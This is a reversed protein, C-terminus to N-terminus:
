KVEKICSKTDSYKFCEKINAIRNYTPSDYLNPSDMMLDQMNVDVIDVFDQVVGNRYIDSSVIKYLIAEKEELTPALKIYLELFNTHKMHLEDETLADELISFDKEHFANAVVANVLEKEAIKEDYDNHYMPLFILMAAFSTVFMFLILGIGGFGNQKKINLNNM